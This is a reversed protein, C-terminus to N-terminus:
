HPPSPFWVLVGWVEPLHLNSSCSFSYSSETICLSLTVSSASCSYRVTAVQYLKKESQRQSWFIVSGPLLLFASYHASDKLFILDVLTASQQGYPHLHLVFCRFVQQQQSLHLLAFTLLSLQVTTLKTHILCNIFYSLQGIGCCSCLM